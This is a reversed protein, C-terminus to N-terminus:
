RTGPNPHEAIWRLVKRMVQAQRARLVAGATGDLQVFEIRVELPADDSLRAAPSRRGPRQNPAAPYSSESATTFVTTAQPDASGASDGSQTQRPREAGSTDRQIRPRSRDTM